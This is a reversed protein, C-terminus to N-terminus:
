DERYQKWRREVNATLERLHPNEDMFKILDELSFDTRQSFNELLKKIVVFDAEEDIEFSLDPRRYTGLADVHHLLYREPHSRIYLTAHERIKSDSCRANSDKIARAKFVEVEMGPPWSTSLDNSVFDYQETERFIRIINDIIRPDVLPGDGFVLVGTDAQVSQLAGDLRSLVDEESGRFATVGRSQCYSAIVDNESKESSAVIIEDIGCCFGVRDLLHGLLPKGNVRRMVKGPLRESGIRALIVAVTTM